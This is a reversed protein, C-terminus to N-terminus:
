LFSKYKKFFLTLNLSNEYLDSKINKSKWSRMINLAFSRLKVFISANIRIRSKDENFSVDKVYHNKNEIAWHWRIIEAYNNVDLIKTSLYFSKEYREEYKKTKTNKIKTYREVIILEKVNEEWENSLKSIINEFKYKKVIRIEKRNRWKNETKIEWLKEKELEIKKCNKQLNKQNWKLQIIAENWSEKVLKFTKKPM